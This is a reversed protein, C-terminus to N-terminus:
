DHLDLVVISLYPRVWHRTWHETQATDMCSSSTCSVDSWLLLAFSTSSLRTKKALCFVAIVLMSKLFGETMRAQTAMVDFTNAVEVFTVNYSAWNACDTNPRTLFM